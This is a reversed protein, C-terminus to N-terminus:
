LNKEALAQAELFWKDILGKEKVEELIENIKNTLEDKGEKVAVAIGLSEDMLQIGELMMIDDNTKMFSKAVITDLITADVKKTKLGMILDGSSQLSVVESDALKNKALDEQISAIQVGVKKGKLDELDKIQGASDKHILVTSKSEYYIDSFNAQREPKPVMGSIVMDLMGTELGALLNSFEMEKIELDVGLSDAIYKALEIDLGVVQDKGDVLAHFEFPPFDPNTGLVIKGKDIINQVEGGQTNAEQTNSEKANAEQSELQNEVAGQADNGGCATLFISLLLIIALLLSLKKM